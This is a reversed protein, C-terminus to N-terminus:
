GSLTTGFITDYFFAAVIFTLPSGIITWIITTVKNDKILQRKRFWIVALIILTVLAIIFSHILLGYNDDYQLFQAKYFTTWCYITQAALLLPLIIKRLTLLIAPLTPAQRLASISNRGAPKALLFNKALIFGVQHRQNSNWFNNLSYEDAANSGFGRNYAAL